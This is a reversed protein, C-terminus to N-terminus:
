GIEECEMLDPDWAWNAPCAHSVFGSVADNFLDFHDSPDDRRQRDILSKSPGSYFRIGVLASWDSGAVGGQGFLSFGSKEAVMAEAGFTVRDAILPQVSYGVDLKFDPTAYYSVGAKGFLGTGAGGYQYGALGSITVPGAYYEGEGAARGVTVGGQQGSYGIDGYAGLLGVQPDRWFGHGGFAVAFADGLAGGLADFQVGVPNGVPLSYSGVAFGAGQGDIVGGRLDFKGNPASVAAVGNAPPLVPSPELDLDAAPAPASAVIIAIFSATVLLRRAEHPMAVGMM